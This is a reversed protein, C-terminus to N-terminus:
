KQFNTGLSDGVMFFVISCIIYMVELLRGVFKAIKDNLLIKM